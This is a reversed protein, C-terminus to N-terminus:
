DTLPNYLFNVTGNGYYVYQIKVSALTVCLLGVNNLSLSLQVQDIRSRTDLVANFQLSSVVGWDWMTETESMSM